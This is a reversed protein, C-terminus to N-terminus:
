MLTTMSTLVRERLYKVRRMQIRRGRILRKPAFPSFSVRQRRSVYGENGHFSFRGRRLNGPPALAQSNQSSEDKDTSDKDASDDNDDAPPPQVLNKVSFRNQKEPKSKIYTKKAEPNEKAPKPEEQPPAETEPVSKNHIVTANSEDRTTSQTPVRLTRVHSPWYKANYAKTSGNENVVFVITDPTIKKVKSFTWSGNTRRIFAEDGLLYSREENVPAVAVSKKVVKPSLMVKAEGEDNNKVPYGNSWEGELSSGNKLVLEGLGDPEKQDNVEGTYVGSMLGGVGTWPHCTVFQKEKSGENKSQKEDKM